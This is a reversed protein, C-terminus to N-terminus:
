VPSPRRACCRRRRARACSVRFHRTLPHLRVLARPLAAGRRVQQLPMVARAARRLERSEYQMATALGSQLRAAFASREAERGGRAPRPAAAAEEEAQLARALAEDADMAAPSASARANRVAPPRTLTYM